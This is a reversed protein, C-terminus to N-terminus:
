REWGLRNAKWAQLCTMRRFTELGGPNAQPPGRRSSRRTRSTIFFAQVFSALALTVLLAAFAALAFFAFQQAGEFRSEAGPINRNAASFFWIFSGLIVVAGFFFSYLPRSFFLLGRLGSRAASIQLIGCSAIFVLIFYDRALGTM